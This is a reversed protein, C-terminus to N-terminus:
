MSTLTLQIALVANDADVHFDNFLVSRDPRPGIIVTWPTGGARYDAMLKPPDQSDHGLAIDTLDHDRMSKKAADPTNDNRGEFATQVVVFRVRDVLGQTTLATRVSRLAPFGHHHCGPCWSQFSFLYIIPENIDELRLDGEVNSIWHPVRLEPARKGAIGYPAQM